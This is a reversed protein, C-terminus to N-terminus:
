CEFLCQLTTKITALCAIVEIGREGLPTVLGQVGHERVQKRQSGQGLLFQSELQETVRLLHFENSRHASM